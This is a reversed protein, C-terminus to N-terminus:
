DAVLAVDLEEPVPEGRHWGPVQGPGRLPRAAWVAQSLWALSGSSPASASGVLASDPSPWLSPIGLRLKSPECPGPHCDCSLSLPLSVSSPFWWLEPSLAEDAGKINGHRQLLPPILVQKMEPTEMLIFHPHGCSGQASHQAPFTSLLRM